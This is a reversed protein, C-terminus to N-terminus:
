RPTEVHNTHLGLGTSSRKHIAGDVGSGGAMEPNAANVIVDVQQQTIDGLVLQVRCNGIRVLM